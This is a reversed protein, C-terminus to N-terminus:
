MTQSCQWKVVIDEEKRLSSNTTWATVSLAIETTNRELKCASFTSFGTKNFFWLTRKMEAWLRGCHRAWQDTNSSGTGQAGSCFNTGHMQTWSTVSWCTALSNATRQWTRWHWTGQWQLSGREWIRDSDATQQCIARSISPQSLSVCVLHNLLQMLGM